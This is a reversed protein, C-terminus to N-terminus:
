LLMPSTHTQKTTIKTTQTEVQKATGVIIGLLANTLSTNPKSPTNTQHHEHSAKLHTISVKPHKGQLITHSTLPQPTKWFM